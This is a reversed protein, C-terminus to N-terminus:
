RAVSNEGFAPFSIEMAAAEPVSHARDRHAGVSDTNKREAPARRCAARCAPALPRRREDDDGPDRGRRAPDGEGGLTEARNGSVDVDEVHATAPQGFPHAEARVAGAVVRSSTRASM